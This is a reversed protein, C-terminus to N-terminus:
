ESKSSRASKSISSSKNDHEGRRVFTTSILTKRDFTYLYTDGDIKFLRPQQFRNPFLDAREYALLVYQEFEKSSVEKIQVNM